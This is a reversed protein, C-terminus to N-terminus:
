ADRGLLDLLMTANRSTAVPDRESGPPAGMETSIREYELNRALRGLEDRDFWTGHEACVDLSVHASRVATLGGGCIPCRRSRRPLPELDPTSEAHEAVKKAMGVLERDVTTTIQRSAPVDAWVGGCSLCALVQWTSPGQVLDAGCAPCAPCRNM